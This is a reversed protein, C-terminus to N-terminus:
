ENEEVVYYNENSEASDTDTLIAPKGVFIGLQTKSGKSGPFKHPKEFLGGDKVWGDIMDSVKGRAVQQAPTRAAKVSKPAGVDHGAIRAVLYGVWDEAKENARAPLPSAHLAAQVRALDAGTGPKPTPPTWREAVGVRDGLPWLGSGNGLGVDVMRVWRGGEARALNAKGNEVRFLDRRDEETLRFDNMEKDTMRVIQRVVRAADVFASAGRSAGAGARDMDTAAAKGAHHLVIVAVDARHAIERLAGSLLNAAENSNEPLTHMAGLPDLVIVDLRATIARQVLAEVIGPVIEPTNRDTRAFQLKLDRGSTMFLNDNLDSHTMGYHQLTAALRRQMEPLDDEANHLWVRLPRVPPEGALLERGSAMAVVDVVILASKGAGGPAVLYSLFGAIASSGYLWRRPPIQGAVFQKVPAFPTGTIAAINQAAQQSFAVVAAAGKVAQAGAPNVRELIKMLAGWGVHSTTIGDWVASPADPDGGWQESWEVFAARGEAEFGGAIAAGKVAHAVKVWDERDEFAGGPQNPLADLAMRLLDASPAAHPTKQGGDSAIRSPASAVVAGGRGPLRLRSAVSDLGACRAAVTPPLPAMVKPMPKYGPVPAALCIIAGRQRKTASPLNPTFPLRVIRPADAMNDAGLRAMAAALPGVSGAVDAGFVPEVDLWVHFGNGTDSILLPAANATLTKVTESWDPDVDPADKRDLDLVMVRRALVDTASAAKDTGALHDHRPNAGVYLNRRASHTAIFADLAARQAPDDLRGCLSVGGAAPNIARLEIVDGPEFAPAIADLAMRAAPGSALVANAADADLLGKGNLAKAETAAAPTILGCQAASELMALLENGLSSPQGELANQPIDNM